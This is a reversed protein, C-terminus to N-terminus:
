AGPKLQVYRGPAPLDAPFSRSGLTSPAPVNDGSLKSVWDSWAEWWSGRVETATELWDDSDPVIEGGTYYSAKPNGPPNVLSQIHGSNSLVFTTPGAMLQTTRYCARWPTLHDTRAGVVFTPLDIKSLDVPTDLVTLAGATPLPNHQFIDLFQLHLAAPLNTGDANWALIDFVPPDEGMLYNNVWYNWVLDNPRMWTFAAGMDRASIVGVRRSRNRAFSLLRASSFAAIPGRDAFDLMTVAFSSSFVRDDGQAALYNLVVSNIIGGACFGILNVDDSGTIERVADIASLTREAYTQLNWEGETPSPNRWSLLFTSLGQAVSHEVFSRGPRLDLFYYRGIPPPVILVARERVLDTTPTYQLLEGIEDRQVVAGPSLAMDRGVVLAGEKAMSPMGRNYRVDHAFNRAGHVLNRGRTEFTRKLAAPNGVLSNTPAVTSTLVTLAFRATTGSGGSAEFDDILGNLNDCAALYAQGVRRYIPNSQWSPDAFRWDGRPPAVTSSGRVIRGLEAAFGAGRGALARGQGLTGVISGIVASLDPVGIPDTAGVGEVAQETVASPSPEQDGVRRARTPAAKKPAAETGAM